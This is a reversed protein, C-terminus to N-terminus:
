GLGGIWRGWEIGVGFGGAVPAQIEDRRGNASLAGLVAFDEMQAVDFAARDGFNGGEDSNGFPGDFGPEMMSQAPNLRDYAPFGLGTEGRGPLFGM